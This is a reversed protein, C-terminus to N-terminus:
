GPQPPAQQQRPPPSQSPIDQHWLRQAELRQLQRQLRRHQAAM